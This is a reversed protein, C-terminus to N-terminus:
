LLLFDDRQGHVGLEGEGPEDGYLNLADKEDKEDGHLGLADPDGLVGPAPGFDIPINGLEEAFRKQLSALPDGPGYDESPGRKRRRNEARKKGRPM